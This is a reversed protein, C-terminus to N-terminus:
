PVILLPGGASHILQQVTSRCLTGRILGCGHSGIVVLQATASARRLEQEPTSGLCHLHVDVSPHQQAATATRARLWDLRDDELAAGSRVVSGHGPADTHMATLPTALIDALYFALTIARSSSDSDDIGLVVPGADSRTESQGRWVVVPCSSKAVIRTAHHGFLTDRVPGSTRSGIVALDATRTLTTLYSTIPDDTLVTDVTLASDKKHVSRMASRLLRKGIVRSRPHGSQMDELRHRPVAHVIRIKAGTRHAIDTAWELAGWSHPSRDLGVSITTIHGGVGPTEDPATDATSTTM